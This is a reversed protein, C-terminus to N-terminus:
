VFMLDHPKRQLSTAPIVVYETYGHRMSPAASDYVHEGIRLYTVGHGLAEVTGALDCGLIDEPYCHRDMATAM